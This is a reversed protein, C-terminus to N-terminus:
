RHGGGRGGGGGGGRFGGGGGQFGAGGHFGSYGGGGHFGGTAAGGSFGHFSPASPAAGGGHFTPAAAYHPSPAFYPRAAPASVMPAGAAGRPMGVMSPARPMPPAGVAAHESVSPARTPGWTASSGTFGAGFRGGFHSPAPPGYAPAVSRMAGNYAPAASRGFARNDAAVHSFAQPATAGLGIATSPRAFNRAQVVGGSTGAAVVASAPIHLASPPPGGIGPRAVVRGGLGASASVWPRTHAAISGVREGVVIRSRLAPSFLDGRAVFAYPTAPVFGIGVAVGRRWCWTPPLPAWGVYAWDNWGYRWSVWAGAYARGPIWEWGVGGVYVWRGYHFPAWGWSYDSVWVYDDDYAWHGATQYPTFDDGVVTTSPVWATGYTADDVWAGYPDLTARFDTLAAPDSDAYEDRRESAQPDSEQADGEQSDGGIIVEESEVPPADVRPAAAPPPPESPPASMGIPYAAERGEAEEEACGTVLPGVALVAVALASVARSKM